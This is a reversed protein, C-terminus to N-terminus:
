KGAKAALRKIGVSLYKRARKDKILIRWDNGTIVKRCKKSGCSCKMKFNPNSEDYCYDWCLEEGKKVNRMAVFNYNKDFGVNPDCCHNLHWAISLYNLDPPAYFGKADGSCYDMVKKQTVADLSDFKTWPILKVTSFQSADAVISDKKLNRTAFVGVEGKLMKSPKM